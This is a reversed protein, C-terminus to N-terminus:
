VLQSEPKKEEDGESLILQSEPKKEEDGEAYVNSMPVAFASGLALALITKRIM